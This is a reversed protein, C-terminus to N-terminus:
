EVSRGRVRFRAQIHTITLANTSSEEIEIQQYQGRADRRNPNKSYRDTAVSLDIIQDLIETDETYIKLNMEGASASDYQMKVNSMISKTGPTITFAGSKYNCTIDLGDDNYVTDILYLYNNVGETGYFDGEDTILFSTFGIRFIYVKEPKSSYDYIITYKPVDDGEKVVSTWIRGEYNIGAAQHLKSKDLTEIFDKIIHTLALEDTIVNELTNSVESKLGALRRLHRDTALYYLRSDRGVNITRPSKTGIFAFTKYLFWNSPDTGFMAHVTREKFIWCSDLFGAIGGTIQDGDGEKVDEFDLLNFRNNVLREASYRVRSRHETGDSEKCHLLLVRDGWALPYRCYAQIDGDEEAEEDQDPVDSDTLFFSTARADITKCYYYTAGGDLTIYIKAQDYRWTPLPKDTIDIRNTGAVTVTLTDSCMRAVKFETSYWAIGILYTGNAKTGTSGEAVTTGSCDAIDDVLKRHFKTGDWEFPLDNYNSAVFRNQNTCGFHEIDATIPIKVKYTQGAVTSEAYNVTLSLTGYDDVSDVVYETTFTDISLIDSAELNMTWESEISQIDDINIVCAGKDVVQYLSVCNITAENNAETFLSPPVYVRTWAAATLAPIPFRFVENVKTATDYLILLWDGAATNVSSKIDLRILKLDTCDVPSALNYYALVQDATAGGAVTLKVSNSGEQFDVNDLTPVINGDEGTWNLECDHISTGAAYVIKSGNTVDILGEDYYNLVTTSDDDPNYERLENSVCFLIHKRRTMDISNTTCYWSYSTDKIGRVRYTYINGATVTNDTYTTVGAAVTALAAWAGDNVKREVYYNAEGSINDTWNVIITDADVQTATAPCPTETERYALCLWNFVPTLSTDTTSMDIRFRVFGHGDTVYTEGSIDTGSAVASVNAWDEWSTGNESTQVKVTLTEVQNWLYTMEGFEPKDTFEKEIIVYGSAYMGRMRVKMELDDHESDFTDGSKKGLLSIKASDSNLPLVVSRSKQSYSRNGHFYGSDYKWLQSSSDDLVRVAWRISDNPSVKCYDIATLQAAGAEIARAYSELDVTQSGHYFDEDTNNGFCYSGTRPRGSRTYAEFNDVDTWGTLDGLEAGPNTLLNEEYSEYDADTDYALYIDGDYVQCQSNVLIDGDVIDTLCWDSFPSAPEPSSKIDDIYFVFSSSEDTCQFVIGEITDRKSATISSIDWEFDEWTDAVNITIDKYMESTGPYTDLELGMYIWQVYNHASYNRVMVQQIGNSYAALTTGTDVLVGNVYVRVTRDADWEIAYHNYTIAASVQTKAVNPTEYYQVGLNGPPSNLDGHVDIWYMTTSADRIEFRATRSGNWSSVQAWWDLRGVTSYNGSEFDKDMTRADYMELRGWRSRARNGSGTYTWDNTLSIWEGHTNVYYDEAMCGPHSNRLYVRMFQGTRDSRVKMKLKEGGSIDISGLNDNYVSEPQASTTGTLKICGTGEQHLVNDLAVSLKAADTATFDAVSDCNHIITDAM